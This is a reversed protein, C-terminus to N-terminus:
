VERLSLAVSRWPTEGHSMRAPAYSQGMTVFDITVDPVAVSGYPDLAWTEGGAVSALFEQMNADNSDPWILVVSTVTNFGKLVTEVTGGLSVHQTKPADGAPLYERLKVDFSYSTTATHGGILPARAHAIYYIAAM